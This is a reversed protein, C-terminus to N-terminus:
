RPVEVAGVIRSDAPTSGTLVGDAWAAVRTRDVKSRHRVDTPLEATVLVAAVPVPTGAARRVADVLEVSAPGPVPAGPQGTTEVVVVPQQTGVPGVGVVAARAIGPLQLVRQEPGVPTLPGAATTIVHALRGEVWIRGAADLHGVDGTRHWGPEGNEGPTDRISERQVDWLQDYHDKMIPSCVVLEGMPADAGEVLPGVARGTEDLASTAVRTGPLPSGVLVGEGPGAAQLETLNTQAVLLGETMGYPTRCEAHPLVDGAAALLETGVPAGASLLLRVRALAARGADDVDDATAVVRRLAAPSAFVVPAAAEATDDDPAVAVVARALAAATLTDPKTVDTEPVAATAGLLPALIAFPAFAAVLSGGPGLGCTQAAADRLAQLTAHTHVVGKAPGTSGSTFLVAAEDSSSPEPLPQYGTTGRRARGVAELDALHEVPGLARRKLGTSPGALVRRGPWNLARAALLAREIGIVVAPDASAVARTLGKVGLGADAVVVVAGLRLCASFLASLDPGPPVLLAVRQGPVVGSAALGEALDEVRAALQKWTLTEAPAGPRLQAVAVADDQSRERLAAWLPPRKPAPTFTSTPSIPSSAGHLQKLWRVVTGAVGREPEVDEVLLHGTGEFRHVDAQPLRARLDQFYRQRFVPDAPGWLLLSPVADAGIASLGAAVRDLEPASPHGPTVPIDAVFAGVGARRAAGRYPALYGEAVGPALPKRATAVTARMFADTTTTGLLHLGKSTFPVLIAPLAADEPQHVATNLLVVGDLVERHRGAWGSSIVGGWDHGITVVRSPSEGGTIGLADTLRGLDDIRRELRRRTGTRESFGMDLQDPAVLRWGAAAVRPLLSRWLFSWTPNGHVALLVGVPPAGTAEYVADAGDLLHVTRTIGDADTFSVLRSWAPDLGPLGAPPLAAPARTM